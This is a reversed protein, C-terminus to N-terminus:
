GKVRAKRDSEASLEMMEGWRRVPLEAVGANGEQQGEVKTMM